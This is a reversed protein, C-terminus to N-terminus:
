DLQYTYLPEAPADTGVNLVESRIESALHACYNSLSRYTAASMGALSFFEPWLKEIRSVVSDGIGFLHAYVIHEKWINVDAATRSEIVDFKRLYERLGLLRAIMKDDSRDYDTEQALTRVFRQCEKVHEVTYLSMNGEFLQNAHGSAHLLMKYFQEEIASNAGAPSVVVVNGDADTELCGNNYLRFMMARMIHSTSKSVQFSYKNYVTAAVLLDGGFPQGQWPQIRGLKKRRLLVRFPKLSMVYFMPKRLILLSFFALVACIGLFLNSAGGGNPTDETCGIVLIPIWVLLLLLLNKRM